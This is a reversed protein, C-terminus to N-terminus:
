ACRRTWRRGRWARRRTPTCRSRRSCRRRARRRADVSWRSSPVDCGVQVLRDVGVAAAAAISRPRTAASSTSTRTATWCRSRAAARAAAPLRDRPPPRRTGAPIPRSRLMPSADVRRAAGAGRGRDVPRAQPLGADARALPTGAVIPVPEWRAGATYDGTLIPYGPGGDLDDVEVISPMPAHVGTGGLLEHIQQAAHPLFPTLLTNCDTVAQLAVHLVTGMRAPDDKLKWPAQDSLYKNAEGVVRM